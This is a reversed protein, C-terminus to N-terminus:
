NRASKIRILRMVRTIQKRFAAHFWECRQFKPCLKYPEQRDQRAPVAFRPRADDVFPMVAISEIPSSGVAGVKRNRYFLRRRCSIDVDGRTDASPTVGVVTCNSHCRRFAKQRGMTEKQELAHGFDPEDSKSASPIELDTSLRPQPRGARSM